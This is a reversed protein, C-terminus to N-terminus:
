GRAIAVSLAILSAVALFSFFFVSYFFPPPHHALMVTSLEAILRCRWRHPACDITHYAALSTDSAVFRVIPARTNERWFEREM